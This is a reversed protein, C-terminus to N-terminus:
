KSKLWRDHSPHPLPPAFFSMNQIYGRMMMTTWGYKYKTSAKYPHHLSLKQSHLKMLQPFYFTAPSHKNLICILWGCKYKTSGKWLHYWSVKQSHLKMFKSFLLPMLCQTILLIKTQQKNKMIQNSNHIM